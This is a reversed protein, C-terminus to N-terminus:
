ETAAAGAQCSVPAAGFSVVGAGAFVKVTVAALLLLVLPWFALKPLRNDHRHLWDLAPGRHGTCFLYINISVALVAFYSVLYFYELYVLSVTNLEKRLSVHALMVVFLLASAAGLAGSANFGLTSARDPDATSMVLVSFLLVLVSLLPVLAVVFANEFRRSLMLNFHLEPFRNQGVYNRIGFRTDYCKRSYSFFTDEIRWSGPVIDRDFGFRDELGTKDYSCCWM